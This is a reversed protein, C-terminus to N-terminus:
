DTTSATQSSTRHIGIAATAEIEVVAGPLALASVEVLTSAPPAPLWKARVSGYAGRQTMDTLYTRLSVIDDLRAGQDELISSLLEFAREAQAAVDGPARVGGDGDLALQGAVFLLAGDTISLRVVHAYAGNLPAPVSPPNSRDIQM